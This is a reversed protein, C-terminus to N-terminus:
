EHKEAVGRKGWGGCGSGGAASGAVGWCICPEVLPLEVVTNRGLSLFKRPRSHDCESGTM